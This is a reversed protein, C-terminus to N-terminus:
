RWKKGYLSLYLNKFPRVWQFRPVKEPTRLLMKPGNKHNDYWCVNGNLLDTAYITHGNKVITKTGAAYYRIETGTPKLTKSYYPHGDNKVFKYTSRIKESIKPTIRRMGKTM